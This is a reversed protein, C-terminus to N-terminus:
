PKRAEDIAARGNFELMLAKALLVTRQEAILDDSGVLIPLAWEFRQADLEAEEKAYKLDITFLAVDHSDTGSVSKKTMGIARCHGVLWRLEEKAKLAAVLECELEETFDTLDEIIHADAYEGRGWKAVLERLKLQTRPTESM